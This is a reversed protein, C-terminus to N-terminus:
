EALKKWAEYYRKGLEIQAERNFHHRDQNKLGAASAAASRPLIEPISDIAPNIWAAHDGDPRRWHGIEGVVVPVEGLEARFAEIMKKVHEPYKAAGMSDPKGWKAVDTEGQHWLIAVFEGNEKAIKARQMARNFNVGRRGPIWTQVGSGGVACPVVGVKDGPHDALYLKVFNDVPGMAAYKRDFHYPAKAAVWKDDRNLKYAGEVTEKDEPKLEGRGAMNSQGICLILKMGKPADVATEGPDVALEGGSEYRAIDEATGAFSTECMFLQACFAAAFIFWINTKM